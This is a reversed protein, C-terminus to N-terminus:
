DSSNDIDISKQSGINPLVLNNDQQGGLESNFKENKGYKVEVAAKSPKPLAQSQLSQAGYPDIDPGNGVSGYPMSDSQKDISSQRTNSQKM